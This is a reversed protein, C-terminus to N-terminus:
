MFAGLKLFGANVGINYDCVPCSHVFDLRCAECKRWQHYFGVVPVMFAGWLFIFIEVWGLGCTDWERRRFNLGVAFLLSVYSIAFCILLNRLIMAAYVKTERSETSYVKTKDLWVWCAPCQVTVGSFTRGQPSSISNAALIVLDQDAIALDVSTHSTSSSGYRSRFAMHSFRLRLLYSVKLFIVYM